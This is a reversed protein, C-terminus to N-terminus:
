NKKLLLKALKDLEAVSGTFAWTTSIDTVSNRVKPIIAPSHYEM